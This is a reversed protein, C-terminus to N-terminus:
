QRSHSEARLLQATHGEPGRGGGQKVARGAAQQQGAGTGARHAIEQCSCSIVGPAPFSKLVAGTEKLKLELAPPILWQPLLQPSPAVGSFPTPPNEESGRGSVVEHEEQTLAKWQKWISMELLVTAQRQM